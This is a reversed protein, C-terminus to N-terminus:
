HAHSREYQRGAIFGALACLANIAFFGFLFTTMDM